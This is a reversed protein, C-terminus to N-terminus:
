RAPAAPTAAMLRHYAPAFDVEDIRRGYADVARLAPRHRNAQEGCDMLEGGALRAYAQVEDRAWDGGERQLAERLPRDDAYLDRPGRVPPQNDVAHTQFAGTVHVHYDLMAAPLRRAARRGAPATM